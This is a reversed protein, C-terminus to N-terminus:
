LGFPWFLGILRRVTFSLLSQAPVVPLLPTGSQQEEPQPVEWMEAAEEQELGVERRVRTLNERAWEQGALYTELPVGYFRAFAESNGFEPSGRYAVAVGSYDRFLGKLDGILNFRGDYRSGDPMTTGMLSNLTVLQQDTLPAEWQLNAGQLVARPRMGQLNANRLIAGRLNVYPMMSAGRLDTRSMLAKQLDTKWLHAGRLDADSLVAWRLNAYRLQAHRLNARPLLVRELNARNLFAGQLSGDEVWGRIQLEDVARLAIGNDPSGMERILQVKLQQEARRENLWDITLVAITITVLSAAVNAYFDLFLQDWGVVLNPWGQCDCYRYLYGGYGVLVGLVGLLLAAARPATIWGFFRRRLNALWGTLRRWLNALRAM